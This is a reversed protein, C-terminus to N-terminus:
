YKTYEKATVMQAEKEAPTDKINKIYYDKDMLVRVSEIKDLFELGQLHDYEHQIVRALLGDCTLSFTDGKEDTAEITILRPRKVPGFITSRAVSGCGEHIIVEEESYFIIKPNIYVRLIDAQDAPRTETARPETIFIQYNEGIQSGALGVISKVHM